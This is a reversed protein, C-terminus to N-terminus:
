KEGRAKRLELELKARDCITEDAVQGELCMRLVTALEADKETIRAKELDTLIQVQAANSRTQGHSQEAYLIWTATGGIILVLSVALGWYNHLRDIDM